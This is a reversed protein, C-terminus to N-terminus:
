VITSSDIKSQIIEAVKQVVKYLTIVAASMALTRSTSGWGVTAQWTGKSRSIELTCNEGWSDGEFRAHLSTDHTDKIFRVLSAPTKNCTYGTFASLNKIEKVVYQKFQKTTIKSM